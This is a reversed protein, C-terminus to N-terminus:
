RSPSGAATQERWCQAYLGGAALLDEHSGSEHAGGDALVQILDARMATTLRHTILLVTRGEALKRFRDLWDAESWPDMASTPEDLILIPARRLFARALAIRQWEGASLEAGELFSKGLLNDYGAPLRAVIEGAGAARAAAEIDSECPTAQADGLAINERVSANYRVPEQFLVTISHRLQDLSLCRLDAGDMEIRGADPDYFRCLLKVLTTKGAGNPGVVAVIRGAPIALSFDLLTARDSGPYRFTVHDFRIGTELTLPAPKPAPPSVIHSDLALFEFLNGLFLSNYYLQGLNELLSRMLRLGQQFAQYFLALDGLTVLGRIARWAMWVLSAGSVALALAGASLEALAQSQALDIRERRLRARLGRYASEFRSGLSFLRLESAAERSTLLWDYYWTRRGDATTRLHWEHQRATQRLVVYLAPLTSLLLAAPLWAGFPVLVALMAALTIGNQLLSGLSELLQVPRYSAEIRARHLSDYFEPSDYFGLDVEISKSHILGTIHDQVLEAQATRIWSTASRLLEALIASAAVLAAVILVPRLSAWSGGARVAALLGNVLPRSLYVTALPLLGQILLLALGAATWAPAAAWVLALTRPVYRLQLAFAQLKSQLFRVM